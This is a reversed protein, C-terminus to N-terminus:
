GDIEEEFLKEIWRVADWRCLAYGLAIAVAITGALGIWLQTDASM